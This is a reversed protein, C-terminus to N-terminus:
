SLTLEMRINAREYTPRFDKVEQFGLARYLRIAPALVTNSELFVTKMGQEGAREIVAECLMKGIGKGRAEEAVALKSLEGMDMSENSRILACVGVPRGCYLAVLISGGNELIHEDPHNLAHDDVAEMRWHATIWAENLARFVSQYCPAFPVIRMNERERKRKADRVRQLLPKEELLEEWEEIARWLDAHTQRFIGEVAEAMDAYPEKMAAVMDQGKTSLRVLTRRGDSADKNEELLGRSTMEKVIKSVSPHSHGIERALSTVSRGEGQALVFLVPFWKPNTEIGYMRYTQAADETISATLLRLRSGLAMRGTKEFFSKIAKM